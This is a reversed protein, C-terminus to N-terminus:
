EFDEGDRNAGIKSVYCKNIYIIFLFPFLLCCELLILM